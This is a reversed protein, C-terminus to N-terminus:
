KTKVGAAETPGRPMINHCGKVQETGDINAFAGLGEEPEFDGVVVVNLRDDDDPEWAMGIVAGKLLNFLFSLRSRDQFVGIDKPYVPNILQISAQGADNVIHIPLRQSAEEVSSLKEGGGEGCADDAVGSFADVIRMFETGRPDVAGQARFGEHEGERPHDADGAIAGLDKGFLFGCLRAQAAATSVDGWLLNDASVVVERFLGVDIEQAQAEILANRSHDGEDCFGIEVLSDKGSGEGRHGRFGGAGEFVNNGFGASFFSRFAIGGDQVESLGDDGRDADEWRMFVQSGEDVLPDGGDFFGTVVAVLEHILAKVL